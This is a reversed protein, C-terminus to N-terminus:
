MNNMELFERVIPPMFKGDYIIGYVPDPL